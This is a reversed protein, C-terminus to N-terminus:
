GEGSGGGDAGRVLSSAGVPDNERLINKLNGGALNQICAHLVHKHTSPYDVGRRIIGESKRNGIQSKRNEDWCTLLLHDESLLLQTLEDCQGPAVRRILRAANDATFTSTRELNKRQGVIIRLRANSVVSFRVCQEIRQPLDFVPTPLKARDVM